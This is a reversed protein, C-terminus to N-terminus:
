KIIKPDKLPIIYKCKLRMKKFHNIIESKFNWATLFIYDPKDKIIKDISYIKMGTGSYYYGQKYPNKDVIYKLKNSKIKCYNLLVLGRDSAGYAVISYGKKIIKNIINKIKFRVKKVKNAFNRYTSVKNLGFKIESFIIKKIKSISNKEKNKLKVYVIISGGHVETKEYDIIEMNYKEFFKILPTISFYSVHEYYMTDFQLGKLTNVLYPNEFIFVTKENCLNKVGKMFENLDDINGFSNTSLIVKPIGYNKKIINSTKFNFFKQLVNIGRKKAYNSTEITPEVCLTKIGKNIKQFHDLLTGDNGGIDIIFDKDNIKFKKSIKKSIKKFHNDITESFRTHYSYNRKYVKESIPVSGSQVHWCNKCVLIKLKPFKKKNINKSIENSVPIRGLNLFAWLKKSNCLRCNTTKLVNKFM